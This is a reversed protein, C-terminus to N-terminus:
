KASAAELQVRHNLDHRQTFANFVDEMDPEV